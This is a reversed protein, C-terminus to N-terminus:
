RLPPLLDHTQPVLNRDDGPRRAADALLDRESKRPFPRPDHDSVEVLLPGVGRGLLDPACAALRNADGHVHGLLVLDLGPEGLDVLREARDVHEHAIGPDLDDLREVQNSNAM